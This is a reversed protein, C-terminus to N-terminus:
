ADNHPLRAPVAPVFHRAYRSAKLSKPSLTGNKKDQSLEVIYM